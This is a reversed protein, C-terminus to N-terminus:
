LNPIDLSYPDVPNTHSQCCSVYLLCLETSLLCTTLEVTSIHTSIDEILVSCHNHFRQIPYICSKAGSSLCFWDESILPM